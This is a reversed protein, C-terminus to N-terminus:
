RMSPSPALLGLAQARAVADTRRHAGLKAFLHRMHTRVTNVSVSLERAIEPASLNTPLYRLVRRESRSLPEILERTPETIGPSGVRTGGTHPAPVGRHGPLLTLIHAILSAHKVCDRAHRELLGPAPHILFPFLMLDPEALDLARELARDAAAQDGLADRASAELLAAAVVWVPHVRISGDLVPALAATAAEPDQQAVRLLAITCRMEGGDREGAELEGIAREVRRNEGLLVLAQLLHARIPTALTHPTVLTSALQRAAQFAAVADAPRGRAMELGGRIYHLHVGVAPEVEPQLTRAAHGLWREAESLGGQAVMAGALVTYAVAVVPEDGWGHERALDIAQLSREAGRTYSRLAALESWHALGSLALYPRGIRRALAVGQELHQNADKFRFAWVEADGLSILALARLDEGLALRSEAPTEVATLLRDVAATLAPLDGRQRALHLRLVTLTVEFRGRRDASVSSSQNSALAVQREAEELSGRALEAAALLATLEVDVAAAGPPFVTLLERATAGHGGLDLDIWHDSLLRAALSWDQAAEAHRVAEGPFGHEAFWRAAAAHVAPLEGPETNRLELQLLDAFLKHYRFWSRRVDLSVVFAGAEELDQLVREGGSAGSLLDALEGSVRELVSTRLLLRRIPESQQELVEALLYEAVTRESGSFEAAFREPDPHRALSLAALRLGAPWGETRAHLLMLAPGPLDVGAARFLAQAEDLTFRLRTGRIETVEGELRLRHLGLRLDHRTALVFRLTPPARMLLLELQHLAEDLKLEHVDDIVLWIQDHLSNLDALLRELIVWGDLDPAATLPRVLTSGATTQRLADLVSVWFRQPDGQQDHVSVWAASDAHGAQDIWSRLMFTKGSGAPASVLTIHGAGDLQEFLARRYVVGRKVTPVAAGTNVSRADPTISSVERV